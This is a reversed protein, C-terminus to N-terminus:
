RGADPEASRTRPQQVPGGGTPGAGSAPRNLRGFMSTSMSKAASAAAASVETDLTRHQEQGEQATSASRDSSTLLPFLAREGWAPHVRVGNLFERQFEVRRAEDAPTMTYEGKRTKVVAGDLVSVGAGGLDSFVNVRFHVFPQGQHESMCVSYALDALPYVNTTRDRNEPNRLSDTDALVEPRLASLYHALAERSSSSLPLDVRDAGAVDLHPRQWPGSQGTLCAEGVRDYMGRLTAHVTRLDEYLAPDGLADWGGPVRLQITATAAPNSLPPVPRLVRLASPDLCDAAMVSALVSAEEVIRRQRLPASAGVPTAQERVSAIETEDRGIFHAHLRKEGQISERDVTMPDYSWSVVPTLQWRGCHEAFGAALAGLSDDFLPSHNHLGPRVKTGASMVMVEHLAHPFTKDTVVYAEDAGLGVHALVGSRGYINELSRLARVSQPARPRAYAPAPLSDLIPVQARYSELNDPLLPVM